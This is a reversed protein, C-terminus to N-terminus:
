RITIDGRQIEVSTYGAQELLAGFKILTLHERNDPGMDLTDLVLNIPPLDVNSAFTTGVINDAPTPIAVAGYNTGGGAVQTGVWDSVLSSRVSIGLDAFCVVGGGQATFRNFAVLNIYKGAVFLAPSQTNGDSNLNGLAHPGFVGGDVVFNSITDTTM